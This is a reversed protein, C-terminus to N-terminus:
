VPPASAPCSVITKLAEMQDSSIFELYQEFSTSHPQQVPMFSERKPLIRAIVYDPLKNIAQKLWSFYVYKLKFHVELPSSVFSGKTIEFHEQLIEFQDARFAIYLCNATRYNNERLIDCSVQKNDLQIMVCSASQTAYDLQHGNMNRFHGFRKHYQRAEFGFEDPKQGVEDM